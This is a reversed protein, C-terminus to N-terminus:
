NESDSVREEGWRQEQDAIFELEDGFDVGAIIPDLQEAKPYDSPLHQVELKRTAHDYEACWGCEKEHDIMFCDDCQEEAACRYTGCVSTPETTM